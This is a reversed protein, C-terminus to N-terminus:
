ETKQRRLSANVRMSVVTHILVTAGIMVCGTIAWPGPVEGCVLYTWVPNLVPELFLLISAELASIHRVGRSFLFYSLGLQFIGLYGICAFDQPTTVVLPFCAPLCILVALLNGYLVPTAPNGERNARLGVITLAFTLASFLAVINGLLKQPKDAQAGDMFVLVALGALLAAIAVYDRLHNKEKLFWPGLALIFILGSDQIFIANAATTLRNALAFSSVTAAYAVSTLMARRNLSLAARGCLLALLLGAVLSRGAAIQLGTHIEDGSTSVWKIAAGATSWLLAAALIM